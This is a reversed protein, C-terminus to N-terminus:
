VEGIPLVWELGVQFTEKYTLGEADTVEVVIVVTFYQSPKYVISDPFSILKLMTGDIEFCDGDEVLTFTHSDDSDPDTVSLEVITWDGVDSSFNNNFYDSSLFLDTPAENVDLIEVEFSERAGTNTEEIPVAYTSKEEYNFTVQAVLQGSADIGFLTSVANDTIRYSPPMSGNDSLQGIITGANQNESITNNSLTLSIADIQVPPTHVYDAAFAVGAADVSAKNVKLTFTRPEGKPVTYKCIYTATDNNLPKCDGSQFDDGSADQAVIHYQTATGDIVFSLDPRATKDDAVTHLMPESFVVKTYITEGPLVAQTIPQTLQMDSYWGVETVTPPTTDAPPTPEAPEEPETTEEPTKVDGITTPPETPEAPPQVVPGVITTGEDCGNITMFITSMMLAILLQAATKFISHKM